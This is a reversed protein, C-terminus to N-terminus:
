RATSPPSRRALSTTCRIIRHAAQLATLTAVPAGLTQAILAPTASM